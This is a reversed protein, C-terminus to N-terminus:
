CVSRRNTLISSSTQLRQVHPDRFANLDSRVRKEHSIQLELIALSQDTTDDRIKRSVQSYGLDSKQGEGAGQGVADPQLSPTVTTSSSPCPGVVNWWNEPIDATVLIMEVQFRVNRSTLIKFPADFESTVQLEDCCSVEPPLFILEARM